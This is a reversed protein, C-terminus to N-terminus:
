ICSISDSIPPRLVINASSWFHPNGSRHYVFSKKQVYCHTESAACPFCQLRLVCYPVYIKSTNITQSHAELLEVKHLWKEEFNLLQFLLISIGTPILMKASCTKDSDGVSPREALRLSGQGGPLISTPNLVSTAYINYVM